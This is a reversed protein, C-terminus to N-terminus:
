CVCTSQLAGPTLTPKAYDVLQDARLRRLTKPHDLCASPTNRVSAPGGSLPVANFAYQCTGPVKTNCVSILCRFRVITDQPVKFIYSRM